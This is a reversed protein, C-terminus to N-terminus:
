FRIRVTNYYLRSPDSTDLLLREAASGHNVAIEMHGAKNFRCLSHGVPVDNYHHSIAAIQEIKVRKQKKDNEQEYLMTPADQAVNLIVEIGFEKMGVLEEFEHRRIDFTVNGYRDVRLVRCDVSAGTTQLPLLPKLAQLSIPTHPLPDAAHIRQLMRAADQIWTGTHYPKGYTHCLCALAAAEDGLALPLLGNDPAIFYHGQWAILAMSPRSGVFLAVPAIHVTGAPFYHWASALIHAAERQSQPPIHHTLDTLQAHPLASLLTGRVTALAPDRTGLDTILTVMM